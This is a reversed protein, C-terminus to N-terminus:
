LFSKRYVCGEGFSQAFMQVNGKLVWFLFFFFVDLLYNFHKTGIEKTLEKRIMCEKEANM